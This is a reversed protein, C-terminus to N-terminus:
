PKGRAKRNGAKCWEPHADVRNATTTVKGWRRVHRAIPEPFCRLWEQLLEARRGDHDNNLRERIASNLSVDNLDGPEAVTGLNKVKVGRPTDYTTFQQYM